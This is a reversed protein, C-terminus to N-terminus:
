WWASRSGDHDRSVGYRAVMARESWALARDLLSEYLSSTDALTGPLAGLENVDRFVLRLAEAHRFRRLRAM